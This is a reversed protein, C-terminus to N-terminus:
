GIVKRVIHASKLLVTKQLAVLNHKGPIESIHKVASKAVAGTAGIVAPIIKTKMKWMRKIEIELDRYKSIKEAEKQVLNYDSPVAVDIILCTNLQRDKIILDPKSAQIYRDTQLQMNWIITVKESETVPAPMHEYWKEAVKLNYYKCVNWHLCSAVADHRELYEKKALIPCASMIHQITEPEVKCLRCKPDASTKLIKAKYYNTAIAQDQCSTILAETEGKLDGKQLWKWTLETDIHSKEIEKLFQGHMKKEHWNNKKEEQIRKKANKKTQKVRETDTKTQDTNEIRESEPLEELTKEIKSREHEYLIGILKENKKIKLYNTIGVKTIKQLSAIETFGRGGEERPVNLRDVNARPHLLGHCTLLKRTKSDIKRLEEKTWQIVGLSYSVVPVALTTIGIAKNKANLETRLIMRIRRFYEKRIKDKMRLYDIGDHEDIGLYKYFDGQDLEQISLDDLIINETSKIKGKIFSAKACKELGFEMRIDNSFEKVTCLQEKLEQDNKSILKLDDIYLLHNVKVKSSRMQYGAKMKNLLSSLPMLAMCFLLPSLSDGQFIGRRIRVGKVLITNNKLKLSLDLDWQEMASRLFEILIDPTRHIKLTELLWSHPISDFAKKYDIWALSLNKRHKKCDEVLAKSLLLHDKTGYTNRACGRQEVPFMHSSTLHDHLRDAIIGTLLKYTTSLCTIPRYNKAEDAQKNKPFLFTRGKTLWEPIQAPNEILKNFSLALYRHTVHFRKLWFNQIGDHGPAKWNATKSIIKKVEVETIMSWEMMPSESYKEKEAQLWSAEKNHECESEWIGKWFHEVEEKGPGVEPPEIKQRLENYLRGPNEAFTKNQWFQKARKEYRAIRASKAQLKQKMKELTESLDNDTHIQFREFLERRLRRLRNSQNGKKIENLQSIIRRHEEIKGMLRRKWPPEVRTNKKKSNNSTEKSTERIVLLGGSYLVRRLFALSIEGTTREEESIVEGIVKNVQGFLKKPMEKENIKKLPELTDNTCPTEKLIQFLKEKLNTLTNVEQEKEDRSEPQDRTTDLQGSIDQDGTTTSFSEEHTGEETSASQSNENTENCGRSAEVCARVDNKIKNLCQESLKKSKEIFRRQTALKNANLEPRVIPNRQRWLNYVDKISTTGTKELIYLHCWMVEANDEVSWKLRQNKQAEPTNRTNEPPGQQAISPLNEGPDSM